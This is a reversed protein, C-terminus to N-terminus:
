DQSLARGVRTARITHPEQSDLRGLELHHEEAHLTIRTVLDITWNPSFGRIASCILAQYKGAMSLTKSYVVSKHM